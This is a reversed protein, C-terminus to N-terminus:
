RCHQATLHSTQVAPQLTPAMKTSLKILLVLSQVLPVKHEKVAQQAKLDLQVKHDKPELQVRLVWTEKHALLVKPVQLERHDQRVRPDQKM